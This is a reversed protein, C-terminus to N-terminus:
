VKELLYSKLFDRRKKYAMVKFGDPIIKRKGYISDMFDWQKRLIIRVNEKTDNKLREFIKEKPEVGYSVIIIDFDKLPYNIADGKEIKINLGYENIIKRAIKVAEEDKDIGFYKAEIHKALSILTNPLPGCGVHLIKDNENIEVMEFEELTAKEFFNIYAKKFPMASLFKEVFIFFKDHVRKSKQM